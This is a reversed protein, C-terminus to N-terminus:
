EDDSSEDDSGATRPDTEFYVGPDCAFLLSECDAVDEHCMCSGCPAMFQGEMSSVWSHIELLLNGWRLEIEILRRTSLAQVYLNTLGGWCERGAQEEVEADYEGAVRAISRIAEVGFIKVFLVTWVVLASKRQEHGHASLLKERLQAEVALCFSVPTSSGFVAHCLDSLTGPPYARMTRVKKIREWESLGTGPGPVSVYTGDRAGLEMLINRFRDALISSVRIISGSSMRAKDDVAWRRPGHGCLWQWLKSEQLGANLALLPESDPLEVPEQSLAFQDPYDDVTLKCDILTLM